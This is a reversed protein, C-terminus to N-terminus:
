KKLSFRAIQDKFQAIPWNRVIFRPLQFLPTANSIMQPYNSVACSFPYDHVLNVTESTYDSRTGFPYSFSMRRKGMIRELVTCSERIEYAQEDKTLASLRSHSCTHCGIDIFPSDKVGELDSQACARYERRGQESVHAWTYLQKLVQERGDRNLQIMISHFAEYVQKRQDDNVNFRLEKEGVTCVLSGSPFKSMLFIRELDDWWFERKTGIYDTTVFITAPIEYKTLIPVANHFNDWYGDDFTIVVANDPVVGQRMSMQCANLSIVNFAKKLYRMHDGFQEPTVCLMQPDHSVELVRHYLLIMM